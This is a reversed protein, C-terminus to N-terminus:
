PISFFSGWFSIDRRQLARDGTNGSARGAGGFFIIEKELRDEKNQFDNTESTRRYSNIKAKISM